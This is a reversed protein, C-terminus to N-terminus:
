RVLAVVIVLAAMAFRYYIFPNMPHKQLYNLLFRICFFGAVAATIVGIPFLAWEGAAIAGTKMGSYIEMMSKLGVGAIIPASLLFSFRAAADRKLGFALGTTITSGSRSVGPFIALAQACGILISQKLNLNHLDTHHNAYRDAILLLAGIGAMIVALAIMAVPNIAVGPQHFLADIKSEFLFGFIGGPITGIVIFWALRRDPNPGICRERISDVLARILRVFDAAFFVLVAVLTGVHLAVDFTLSTLVPDTWGFLWPFIILHASSSVPLFETAGQLLGLIIAQLAIPM